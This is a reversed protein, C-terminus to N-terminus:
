LCKNIKYNQLLKTGRREYEDILKYEEDSNACTTIYIRLTWFKEKIQHIKYNPCLKSFKENFEIILNIMSETEPVDFGYWGKEVRDWLYQPINKYRM